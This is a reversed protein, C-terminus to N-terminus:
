RVVEFGFEFGLAEQEQKCKKLLEHLKDVHNKLSPAVSEEGVIRIYEVPCDFRMVDWFADWNEGYYEPFDLANKIRHHLEGLYRCGSLDLTAEIRDGM